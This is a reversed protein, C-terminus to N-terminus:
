IISNGAIHICRVGFQMHNPLGPWCSHKRTDEDLHNDTMLIFWPKVEGTSGCRWCADCLYVMYMM